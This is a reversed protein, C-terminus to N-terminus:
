EEKEIIAELIFVRIIEDCYTEQRECWAQQYASVTEKEGETWCVESVMHVVQEKYVREIVESVNELEPKNRFTRSTYTYSMHCM